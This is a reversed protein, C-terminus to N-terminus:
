TSPGRAWPCRRPRRTSPRACRSAGVRDLVERHSPLVRVFASNLLYPVPRGIPLNWAATRLRSSKVPDRDLEETSVLSADDALLPRFDGAVLLDSDLWIAQDHGAELMRLLLSPKANWGKLHPDATRDLEVNPHAM